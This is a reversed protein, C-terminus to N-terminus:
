CQESGRTSRRGDRCACCVATLVVQIKTKFHAQLKQGSRGASQKGRGKPAICLSDRGRQGGPWGVLLCCLACRSCQQLHTCLSNILKPNKPERTSFEKKIEIHQTWEISWALAEHWLQMQPRTGWATHKHAMQECCRVLESKTVRRQRHTAPRPQRRSVDSRWRSKGSQQQLPPCHSIHYRKSM